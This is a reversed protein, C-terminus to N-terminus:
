DHEGFIAHTEDLLYYYHGNACGKYEESYWARIVDEDFRIEYSNDYGNTWRDSCNTKTTMSEAIRRKTYDRNYKELRMTKISKTGFLSTFCDYGWWRIGKLTMDENFIKHYMDWDQMASLETDSLSNLYEAGKLMPSWFGSASLYKIVNKLNKRCQKVADYAPEKMVINSIYGVAIVYGKTRSRPAFECINNATSVFLRKTEKAGNCYTIEFKKGNNGKVADYIEQYEM